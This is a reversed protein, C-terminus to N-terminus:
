VGSPRLSVGTFSGRANATHKHDHGKTFLSEYIKPTKEDPASVRQKKKPQDVKTTEDPKKKRDKKKKAQKAELQERLETRTKDDPHIKVLDTFTEECLVCKKEEKKLQNLAQDSVVHGCGWMVSFKIAGTAEKLSIPCKFVANKGDEVLELKCELMDKLSRVHAFEAMRTRRASDLILNILAEKNYLYGLRCAVVPIKLRERSVACTMWRDREKVDKEVVSSSGKKMMEKRVRVLEMRSNNLTGGDGGM